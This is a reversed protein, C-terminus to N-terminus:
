TFPCVTYKQIRTDKQKQVPILLVHGEFRKYVTKSMVYVFVCWRLISLFRFM